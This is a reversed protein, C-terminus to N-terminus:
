VSLAIPNLDYPTSKMKISIKDMIKKDYKKGMLHTYDLELDKKINFIDILYTININKIKAAIALNMQEIMCTLHSYEDIINKGKNKRAWLDYFDKDNIMELVFDCYYNIFNINNGGFIGMNLPWIKEDRELVKNWIEPIKEYTNLVHEINYVGIINKKPNVNKDLGQVFVQSNLFNEPLPKWLFVDGDLHLFPGYKAIEKYAYIKGLAWIEKFNPINNLKTIINTFNFDKFIKKGNDDTILYIKNKPYNKKILEFSLRWMDLNLNDKIGSSWFSYCINM